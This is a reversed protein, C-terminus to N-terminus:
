RFDNRYKKAQYIHALHHECHWAYVALVKSLKFLQNYEPHFYSKDFDASSLGSILKTWRTHLGTLLMISSEPKVDLTDSLEAWRDEFYPKIVPVEETLALKFRTLAHMHSDACHHVVQLISWGGPRYRFQFEADSLEVVAKQLKGPFARITELYDNKQETGWAAPQVFPGIPYKLQDLILDSNADMRFTNPSVGALIVQSITAFTICPIQDPLM